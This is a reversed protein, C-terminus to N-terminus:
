GGTPIVDGALIAEVAESIAAAVTDWQEIVTDAETKNNTYVAFTGHVASHASGESDRVMAARAPQYNVRGVSKQTM